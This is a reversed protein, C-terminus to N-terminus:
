YITIYHKFLGQKGIIAINLYMSYYLCRWEPDKISLRMIDAESLCFSVKTAIIAQHILNSIDKAAEEPCLWNAM